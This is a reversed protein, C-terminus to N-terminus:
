PCSFRGPGLHEGIKISVLVSPHAASELDGRVRAKSWIKIGVHVSLQREVELDRWGSLAHLGGRASGAVSFAVTTV